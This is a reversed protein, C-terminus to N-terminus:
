FAFTDEADFGDVMNALKQSPKPTYNQGGKGGSRAAKRRESVAKREEPTQGKVNFLVSKELNRIWARAQISSLEEPTFPASKRRFPHWEFGRFYFVLQPRATDASTLSHYCIGDAGRGITYTTNLVKERSYSGDPLKPKIYTDAAFSDIIKDDAFIRTAQEIIGELAERGIGAQIPGRKKGDEKLVDDDIRTWVSFQPNDNLVSVNFSSRSNEVGPTEIFMTLRPYEIVTFSNDFTSM